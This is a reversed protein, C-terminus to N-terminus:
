STKTMTIAARDGDKVYAVNESIVMEKWQSKIIADDEVIQSGQEVSKRVCYKNDMAMLLTTGLATPYNSNVQKVPAGFMAPLQGTTLLPNGANTPKFGSLAYIPGLVTKEAAILRVNYLAAFSLFWSDLGSETWDGGTNTNTASNSEGSNGNVIAAVALIVKSQAMDQGILRLNMGLVDVRQQRLFEYTFKLRRGYKYLPITNEGATIEVTPFTAGQTVRKMEADTTGPTFTPKLTKTEAANIMETMYILDTDQLWRADPDPEMFINQLFYEQFLVNGDNPSSYFQDVTMVPLSLAVAMAHTTVIQRALLQRDLANLHEYGEAVPDYGADRELKALKETVSMYDRRADAFIGDDVKILKVNLM